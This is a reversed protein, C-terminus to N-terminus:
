AFQLDIEATEAFGEGTFYPVEVDDYRDKILTSADGHIHVLGADNWTYVTVNFDGTWINPEDAEVWDMVADLTMQADIGEPVKGTEPNIGATGSIFIWNGDVVARSYGALEEWKSGSSILQRDREEAQLFPSVGYSLMLLLVTSLIKMM